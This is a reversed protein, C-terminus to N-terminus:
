QVLRKAAEAIKAATVRLEDELNPAYAIPVRPAGLRTTPAKLRGHLREAVTAAVEAGFGAVAVAEHAILLRGTKAVSALVADKDWPWLTRLDVVEASVGEKDLQEAAALAEHVTASWSVITVDDGERAIRAEGFALVHDGEPVEDELGWLNKHEMHVVPDDLDSSCM